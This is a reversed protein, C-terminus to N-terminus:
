VPRVVGTLGGRIQSKAIESLSKFDLVPEELILFIGRKVNYGSAQQALDNVRSNDHRAIHRIAFNDFNAIIHLCQDLYRNLSGPLKNCWWNRIVLRKWTNVGIMEMVQLGFLLANYEAQNNTCYYELRVSVEFCMGNPSFLVVGIGQGEKCSSGDFYIKWPIVETLM